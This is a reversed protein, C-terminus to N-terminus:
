GVKAFADQAAEFEKCLWGLSEVNVEATLAVAAGKDDKTVPVFQKGNLDKAFAKQLKALDKKGTLFLTAVDKYKQALKKPGAPKKETASADFTLAAAVANAHDQFASAEKGLQALVRKFYKAESDEPDYITVPSGDRVVQKGDKMVPIEKRPIGTIDDIGKIATVVVKGEANKEEKRGHLFIDRFEALSGRYVVNNIAEELCAGQRKANTDFEEVTAPVSLEIDLGLSSYKVKKM